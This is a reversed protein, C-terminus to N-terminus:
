SRVGGYNVYSKNAVGLRKLLRSFEEQSYSNEAVFTYVLIAFEDDLRANAKLQELSWHSKRVQWAASLLKNLDSSDIIHNCHSCHTLGDKLQESLEHGCTPCVQIMLTNIHM